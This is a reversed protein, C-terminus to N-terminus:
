TVITQVSVMRKGVYAHIDMGIVYTHLVVYIVTHVYTYVHTIYMHIYM